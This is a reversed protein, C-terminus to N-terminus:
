AHADWDPVWTPDDLLRQLFPRVLSAAYAAGRGEDRTRSARAYPLGEVHAQITELAQRRGKAFAEPDIVIEREEDAVLVPKPYLPCDKAVMHEHGAATCARAWAMLEPNAAEFEEIMTPGTGPVRGTRTPRRRRESM